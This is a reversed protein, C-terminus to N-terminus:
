GGNQNNIAEATILLGDRRGMEDISLINYYKGEYLVRQQQSIGRRYRIMFVASATEFMRSARIFERGGSPAVNAPISNYLTTWTDVRDGNADLATNKVEISIRRDLKSPNM